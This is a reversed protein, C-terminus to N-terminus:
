KEIEELRETERKEEELAIWLKELIEQANESLEM